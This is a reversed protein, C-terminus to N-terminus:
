EKKVRLQIIAGNVRIPYYDLDQLRAVSYGEPLTSPDQGYVHISGIYDWPKDSKPM